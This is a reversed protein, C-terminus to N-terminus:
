GIAILGFNEGNVGNKFKAIGPTMLIILEEWILFIIILNKLYSIANWILYNHAYNQRGNISNYGVLYTSTNGHLFFMQGAIPANDKFAQFLLLNNKYNDFIYQYLNPNPGQFKNNKM